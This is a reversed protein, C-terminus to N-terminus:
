IGLRQSLREASKNDCYTNYLSLHSDDFEPPNAIFGTLKDYSDIITGPLKEDLNEITFGRSTKYEDIDNMVFGIPRKLICYDIWVSSYDTLLYDSAGLLPYLQDDFDKPKIIIINSFASFDKEQLADMPHLKIILLGKRDRLFGDLKSLEEISLFSIGNENFVGDNRIDGIISCRYTPLWIGVSEYDKVNINRKTFFPTKEFMLDNRPQGTLLVHSTDINKFSRSMIDRFFPSTAILYDARTPDNAGHNTDMLGIVKLPM